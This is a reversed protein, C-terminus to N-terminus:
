RRWGSSCTTCCAPPSGPAWEGVLTLAGDDDPVALVLSGVTGARRGEGPKYGVIVVEQTLSFPSKIWDRSRRGSQYASALRKAMVGELGYAEAAAVANTAEVDILHPPVRVPDGGLGLGALLDRRRAYPQDLAPEGDIRLVDFVQYIVPVAAILAPTPAAVHMRQQLRSFSPRDHADLAVIEGDLV